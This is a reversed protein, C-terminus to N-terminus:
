LFDLTLLAEQRDLRTQLRLNADRVSQEYGRRDSILHTFQDILLDLDLPEIHQCFRGLGMEAMLAENKEGYGISVTPKGLKLACVVNHFRTAVVVDTEALQRMLAHISDSRDALLRDPPLNPRAIAVKTVVDTVAEWDATEGMLLRVPHGRDLLWLVFRTIKEVYIAYVAEGSARDKRWGHFAMVGVGVAPPGDETEHRRSSSPEPLKFAIDPYVPDGRTDFGISEMFTKSIMDRYSRYQAMALASKFLWRSVPHGISGAGISVFAVKASCLRAALCWAFLTLPRGYLSTGFGELAGGGAVILLDLKRTHWIARVLSSLKRPGQLTLRDLSRLLANSPEPIGYPIAFLGFNREVQAAAEHRPACFCALDANPRVRRLFLLMAELSGDNGTNGCGFLGFLGIRIPAIPTERGRAAALPQGRDALAHDGSPTAERALVNPQSRLRSIM